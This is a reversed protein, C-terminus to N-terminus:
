KHVVRSGFKESRGFGVFRPSGESKNFQKKQEFVAAVVPPLRRQLLRRRLRLRVQQVQEVDVNRGSRRGTPHVRPARGGM